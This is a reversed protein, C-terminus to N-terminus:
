IGSCDKERVKRARELWDEIAERLFTSVDQDYGRALASLEDAWSIPIRLQIAKMPEKKKRQLSAPIKIADSQNDKARDNM